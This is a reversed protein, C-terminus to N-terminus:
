DVVEKDLFLSVFSASVLDVPDRGIPYLGNSDSWYALQVVDASQDVLKDLVAGDVNCLHYYLDLAQRIVFPAAYFYTGDPMKTRFCFLFHEGQEVDGFVNVFRRVFEPRSVIM